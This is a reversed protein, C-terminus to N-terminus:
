RWSERRTRYKARRRERSALRELIGEPGGFIFCAVEFIERKHYLKVSHRGHRNRVLRSPSLMKFDSRRLGFRESAGLQSHYRPTPKYTLFDFRRPRHAISLFQELTKANRQAMKCQRLAEKYAKLEKQRNAFFAEEESRKRKAQMALLSALNPGNNDHSPLSKMGFHCRFCVTEICRIHELNLELARSHPSLNPFVGMGNDCRCCLRGKRLSVVQPAWTLLDPRALSLRENPFLYRKVRWRWYDPSAECRARLGPMMAMLEDWIFLTVREGFRVLVDVSLSDFKM